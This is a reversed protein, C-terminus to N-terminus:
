HLCPVFLSVFLSLCVDSFNRWALYFPNLVIKKATFNLIAAKNSSTFNYMENEEKFEESSMRGEVANKIDEFVTKNATKTLALTDLKYAFEDKEDALVFAFYKLETDTWPRNRLKASADGADAM